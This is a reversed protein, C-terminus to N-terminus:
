IERGFVRESFCLLPPPLLKRDYLFDAHDDHQPKPAHEDSYQHPVVNINLM